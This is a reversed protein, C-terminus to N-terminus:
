KARMHYQAVDPLSSLFALFREQLDSDRSVPVLFSGTSRNGLLTVGEYGRAWLAGLAWAVFADLEDDSSPEFDHDMNLLGVSLLQQELVKWLRNLVTSDKKYRWDSLPEDADICWLWLAVAPHVEAIFHGDGAPIRDKELLYFPLEDWSTM